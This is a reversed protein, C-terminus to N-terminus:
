KGPPPVTKEIVRLGALATAIELAHARSSRIAAIVMPAAQGDAIEGLLRGGAGGLADVDDVLLVDPAQTRVASVTAGVSGASEALNLVSVREGAAELGLALRMATTSKGVAATGTILVVQPREGLVDDLLAREFDRTVSFGDLLDAWTPERGMLFLALDAPAPETRCENLTKVVTRNRLGGHRRLIAQHGLETEAAVDSLATEFFEEETAEIWDVNYRKLLAARARPMSPSVLYSPPRLEILDNGRRRRMEIQQWLGPEELVTGVFVVPHNILDAALTQMWVEPRSLREGYQPASFTVNPFDRLRGNLHVSLLASGAPVEDMHGALAKIERPLSFRGAVAEDLDDINLTYHRFWPLAFWDRYRDPIQNPDATFARRLVDGVANRARSLAVDFVDGLSSAQDVPQNPFALRWLEDRLEYVSSIAQGERTNAGRSFGAGTFLILEGSALQRRLRAVLGRDISM